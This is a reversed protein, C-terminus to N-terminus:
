VAVPGVRNKIERLLSYVTAISTRLNNPSAKGHILMEFDAGGARVIFKHSNGQAAPDAVLLVRTKDLGLGALALTAAVNANKPYDRAAQRATGEFFVTEERLHDLDCADEAPSGKWARPPKRGEYTVLKIGSPRLASLLDTGGIAGAPLIMRAGGTRAASVLSQELAKDALAGVSAVITDAGAELCAPVFEGVAPHGACEIVLDPRPEALLAKINDVHPIDADRGPRVLARLEVDALEPDDQVMRALTRGINGYGIIGVLM